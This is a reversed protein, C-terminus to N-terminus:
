NDDAPVVYNFKNWLGNDYPIIGMDNLYAQYKYSYSDRLIQISALGKPIDLDLLRFNSRDGGNKYFRVYYKGVVLEDVSRVQREDHIVKEKAAKDLAKQLVSLQKNLDEIKANRTAIGEKLVKLANKIKKEWMANHSKKRASSRIAKKASQTNAM